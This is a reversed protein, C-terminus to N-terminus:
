PPRCRPPPHCRCRSPPPRRRRSPPPRRRRSPPPPRRRSPCSCPAAPQVRQLEKGMKMMLIMLMKMLM